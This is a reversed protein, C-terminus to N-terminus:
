AKNMSQSEELYGEIAKISIQDADMEARVGIPIIPNELKKHGFNPHYIIPFNYGSTAKLVSELPDSRFWEYGEELFADGIIMGSIQDLFGSLALSTLIQDVERPLLGGSEWFFIGDKFFSLDQKPILNGYVFCEINGGFLRGTARGARVSKAGISENSGFIYETHFRECEPRLSELGGWDSQDLKALINPGYFTVLGTASTIANDLVSVDSFGIIPKQTAKIKKYPLNNVLQNCAKGGYTAILAYVDDIELLQEIDAIREKVTGANTGFQAFANEAFITERAIRIQLEAAAERTRAQRDGGLFDSPSFAGIKKGRELPRSKLLEM